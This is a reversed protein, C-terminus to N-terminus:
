EAPTSGDLHVVGGLGTAEVFRALSQPANRLTLGDHLRGARALVELGAADIYELRTCDVEIRGDLLALMEELRSATSADVDGTVRVSTRGDVHTVHMVCSATM